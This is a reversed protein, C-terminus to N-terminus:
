LYMGYSSRMADPGVKPVRTRRFEGTWEPDGPLVERSRSEAVIPVDHVKMQPLISSLNSAAFATPTLLLENDDTLYLQRTDLDRRLVVPHSERDHRYVANCVSCQRHAAFRGRGTELKGTPLHHICKWDPLIAGGVEIPRVAIQAMWPSVRSFISEHMALLPRIGSFLKRPVRRLRVPRDLDASAKLSLCGSCLDNELFENQWEADPLNYGQELPQLLVLNGVPERWPIAPGDIEVPAPPRSLVPGAFPEAAPNRLMLLLDSLSPAVFYTEEYPNDLEGCSALDKVWISGKHEGQCAYLVQMAAPGEAIPVMGPALDSRLEVSVSELSLENADRPILIRLRGIWARAVEGDHWYVFPVSAGLTPPSSVFEILEPPWEFGFTQQALKLKDALSQNM